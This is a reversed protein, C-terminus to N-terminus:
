PRKWRRCMQCVSLEFGDTWGYSTIALPAWAGYFPILPTRGQTVRMPYM